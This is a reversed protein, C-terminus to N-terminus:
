ERASLCPRRYHDPRVPLLHILHYWLFSHDFYRVRKLSDNVPAQGAGADDQHNRSQPHHEMGEVEQRDGHAPELVQFKNVVEGPQDKDRGEEEGDQDPPLLRPYEMEGVIQLPDLARAAIEPMHLIGRLGPLVVGSLLGEEKCDGTEADDHNDAPEDHPEGQVEGGPRHPDHIEEVRQPEQHDEGEEKDVEVQPGDADGAREGGNYRAVHGPGPALFLAGLPQSLHFFFSFKFDVTFFLRNRFV